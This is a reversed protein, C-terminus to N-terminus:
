SIKNESISLWSPLSHDGLMLISLSPTPAKGNNKSKGNISYVFQEDSTGAYQATGFISTPGSEILINNVTYSPLCTTLIATTVGGSIFVSGM